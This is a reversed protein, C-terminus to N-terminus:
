VSSARVAPVQAEINDLVSKRQKADEAEAMDMMEDPFGASFLSPDGHPTDDNDISGFRRPPPSLSGPSNGYGPSTEMTEAILATWEALSRDPIPVSQPAHLKGIKPSDIGGETWAARVLSETTDSLLINKQASRFKTEIPRGDSPSTRKMRAMRPGHINM